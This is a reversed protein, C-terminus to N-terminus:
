FYIILYFLIIVIHIMIGISRLRVYGEKALFADRAMVLFGISALFGVIGLAGILSWDFLGYINIVALLIIWLLGIISSVFTLFSIHNKKIMEHKINM